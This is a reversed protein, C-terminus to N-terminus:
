SRACDRRGPMIAMSSASTPTARRRSPTRSPRAWTRRPGRCRHRARRTRSTDTFCSHGSEMGLSSSVTRCSTAVVGRPTRPCRAIGTRRRGPADPHLRPVAGHIFWQGEQHFLRAPQAEPRRIAQADPEHVHRAASSARPKPSVAADDDVDLVPEARPVLAPVRELHGRATALQAVCPRRPRYRRCRSRDPRWRDRLLSTGAAGDPRDRRRAGRPPARAPRRM